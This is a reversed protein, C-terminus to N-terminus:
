VSWQIEPQAGSWSNKLPQSNKVINDFDAGRFRTWTGKLGSTSTGFSEFKEGINVVDVVTSDTGKNDEGPTSEVFQNTPDKLLWWLFLILMVGIVSWLIYKINKEM